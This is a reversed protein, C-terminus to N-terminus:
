DDQPHDHNRMWDPKQLSHRCLGLMREFPMVGDPDPGCTNFAHGGLARLIRFYLNGIWRLPAPMSARILERVVHDAFSRWEDTMQGEPHARTCYFWDHIRCAWKFSLDPASSCGDDYFNPPIESLLKVAFAPIM